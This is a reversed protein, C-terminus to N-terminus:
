WVRDCMECRHTRLHSGLARRARHSRGAGGLAISAAMGLAILHRPTAHLLTMFRM